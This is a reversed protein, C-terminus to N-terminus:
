CSYALQVMCALLFRMGVQEVKTYIVKVLCIIMSLSIYVLGCNAFIFPYAYLPIIVILCLSLFIPAGLTESVLYEQSGNERTESVNAFLHCNGALKVSKAIAVDLYGRLVQPPKM